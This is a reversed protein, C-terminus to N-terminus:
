KKALEIADEAIDNILDNGVQLQGKEDVTIQASKGIVYFLLGFFMNGLTYVFDIACIITM